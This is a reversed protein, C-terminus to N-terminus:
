EIDCGSRIVPPLIEAPTATPKCLRSPVERAIGLYSLKLFTDKILILSLRPNKKRKDKTDRTERKNGRASKERTGGDAQTGPLLPPGIPSKQLFGLWTLIPAYCM